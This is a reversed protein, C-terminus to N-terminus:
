SYCGEVALVVGLAILLPLGIITALNHDTLFTQISAAYLSCPVMYIIITSVCITGILGVVIGTDNLVRYHSGCAM